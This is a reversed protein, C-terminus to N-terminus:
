SAMKRLNKVKGVRLGNLMVVEAEELDFLKGVPGMISPYKESNVPFSGVLKGFAPFVILKKGEKEALLWCKERWRGGLRNIFEVCPHSHGVLLTSCELVEKSPLSHGHFLGYKEKGKQFVMGNSEVLELKENKLFHLDSDHNGKLVLVKGAKLTSLFERLVALERSGMGYYDQKLDGLVILDTCKNKSLQSNIEKAVANHQEPLMVGKEKLSHEIGLHVDSIVLTKGIRAAAENAILKM